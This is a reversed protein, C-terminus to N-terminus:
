ELFRVMVTHLASNIFVFLWIPPSMYRIGAWVCIMAGTHHWTQLGSSIKGKSIIIATDTIEYFKSLYFLWGYFALGENWIRGVDTSDPRGGVLKIANNTTGWQGLNPSYTTASGLGRPGNIKCLADAGGALGSEEHWGPWSHRITSLMGFFTWGSYIALIINHAVILAYFLTTQSFAWPKYKREKNRKNFYAVTAAYLLAITFPIAPHLVNNYVNEDITFPRRLTHDSAPPNLAPPNSDPPLKFLSAPPFTFYVSPATSTDQPLVM